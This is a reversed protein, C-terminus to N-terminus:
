IKLGSQGEEINGGLGRSGLPVKYNEDINRPAAQKEQSNKGEKRGSSFKIEKLISVKAKNSAM